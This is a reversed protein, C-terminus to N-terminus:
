SFLWDILSLVVFINFVFLRMFTRRFTHSADVNIEDDVLGDVMADDIGDALNCNADDGDDKDNVVNLLEVRSCRCWSCCCWFCCCMFCFWWREINLEDDVLFTKKTKSVNHCRHPNARHIPLDWSLENTTEEKRENKRKLKSKAKMNATTWHTHTHIHTRQITSEWRHIFQISAVVLLLFIRQVYEIKFTNASRINFTQNMYSIPTARAHTEVDKSAYTDAHQSCPEHWPSRQIHATHPQTYTVVNKERKGQARREINLYFTFWLYWIGHTYRECVCVCVCMQQPTRHSHRGTSHRRRLRNYSSFTSRQRSKHIFANM